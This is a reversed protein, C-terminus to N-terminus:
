DNTLDISFTSCAKLYNEKDSVPMDQSKQLKKGLLDLCEIDKSAKAINILFLIYERIYEYHKGPREYDSKWINVLLKTNSRFNFLSLMDKKAQRINGLIYFNIWAQRFIPRHHLSRKDIRRLETLRDYIIKYAMIKEQPLIACIGEFYNSSSASIEDFLSNNPLLSPIGSFYKEVDQAQIKETYLYKALASCLTYIPERTSEVNEQQRPRSIAHNCALRYHGLVEQPRLELKSCCKGIMYHCKWHSDDPSDYKLAKSFLKIVLKYALKKGLVPEAIKHVKGDAMVIKSTKPAKFAEMNMPSGTMSFVLEGFHAYLEFLTADSITLKREKILYWARVFALFAKKQYKAIENKFSPLRATSFVLIEEALQSLSLALDYWGYFDNPCLYIHNMFLAIAEKLDDISKELNSKARNKTNIRLTRGRIWFIKFYVPSIHSIESSDPRTPLSATEVLEAVSPKPVINGSLYIDVIRANFQARYANDPIANFIDFLIDIAIKVDNKLPVGRNLKELATDKVLDFLPEASKQDIDKHVANHDQINDSDPALLLGYLCHYCQYLSACEEADDSKPLVKLLHKLFIGNGSGCIEREGLEEHIDKLLTSLSTALDAEYIPMEELEVHMLISLLVWAQMVTDNFSNAKTIESPSHPVSEPTEYRSILAIFDSHRYIYFISMQIVILLARKFSLSPQISQWVPDNIDKQFALDTLKKIVSNLTRLLDFFETDEEKSLFSDLTTHSSGYSVINDVAQELTRSYCNWAEIFEGTKIYAKGLMLLIECIETPSARSTDEQTELLYDKLLRIVGPYDKNELMNSTMTVYENTQQDSLKQQISGLSICNDYQCRLSMSISTGPEHKSYELLIFECQEYLRVADDINGECEALKGRAFLLRLQHQVDKFEINFESDSLDSRKQVFPLEFGRVFQESFEIWTHCLQAMEHLTAEQKAAGKSRSLSLKSRSSAITKIIFQDVLSECIRLVSDTSRRDFPFASFINRELAMIADVMPKIIAQDFAETYEEQADLELLCMALKCLSDMSGSNDSNLATVFNLLASKISHQNVDMCHDISGKHFTGCKRTNGKGSTRGKPRTQNAEMDWHYSSDLEAVKADLWTWFLDMTVTDSTDDNATIQPQNEFTNENVKMDSDLAAVLAPDGDSLGVLDIPPLSDKMWITNLVLRAKNVFMQEEGMMKIRANKELEIKQQQRKSARLTARKEEPEEEPEDDPEDTAGDEREEQTDERKRKLSEKDVNMDDLIHITPSVLDIIVPGEVMPETPLVNEESQLNDNSNSELGSKLSEESEWDKYQKPDNIQNDSRSPQEPVDLVIPEKREVNIHVRKNYIFARKYLDTYINESHRDDNKGNKSLSTDQYLLLIKKTLEPWTLKQLSISSVQELGSMSVDEDHTQDLSNDLRMEQDLKERLQKGVPWHPYQELICDIYFVCEFVDGIKYAVTCIGNLCRWQNPSIRGYGIKELLIEHINEFVFPEVGNIVSSEIKKPFGLTASLGRKYAALGVKDCDLELALDGVKCWLAPDTPDTDLAKLYHKVADKGISSKNTEAANYEGELIQGYNKYALYPLDKTLLKRSAETRLEDKLSDLSKSDDNLIERYLEKAEKYQKTQHLLLARNYTRVLKEVKLEAENRSEIVDSQNLVTWRLM